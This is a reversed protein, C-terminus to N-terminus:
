KRGFMGKFRNKLTRKPALQQQQPNMNLGKKFSTVLQKNQPKRRNQNLAKMNKNLTNIEARIRNQEQKRNAIRGNFRLAVQERTKSNQNAIFLAKETEINKTAQVSNKMKKNKNEKVNVLNLFKNNMARMRQIANRADRSRQSKEYQNQNSANPASVVNRLNSGGGYLSKTQPRQTKPFRMPASQVKRLNRGGGGGYASNNRNRLRPAGPMGMPVRNTRQSGPVLVPSVSINSFGSFNNM